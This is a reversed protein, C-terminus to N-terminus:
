EVEADRVEGEASVGSVKSNLWDLLSGSVAEEEDDSVLQAEQVDEDDDVDDDEEEDDDDDDDEDVDDDKEDEDEDDEESDEDDFVESLEHMSDRVEFLLAKLHGLLYDAGVGIVKFIVLVVCLLGAAIMVLAMGIAKLVTLWKTKSQESM